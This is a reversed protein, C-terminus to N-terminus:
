TTKKVHPKNSMTHTETVQQMNHQLVAMTPEWDNAWPKGDELALSNENAQASVNAVVMELRSLSLTLSKCNCNATSRNQYLTSYLYEMDVDLEQLLKAHVSINRSLEEVERLVSVKGEEVELGTEMFLIQSRRATNNILKELDKLDFRLQQAEGSTVDVDEMLGDVQVDPSRVNDDLLFFM